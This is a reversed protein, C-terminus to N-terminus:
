QNVIAKNRFSIPNKTIVKDWIGVGVLLYKLWHIFPYCYLM